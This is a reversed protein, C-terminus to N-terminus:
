EIGLRKEVCALGYSFFPWLLCNYIAQFVICYAIRGKFSAPHRLVGILFHILLGDFISICFLLGIQVVLSHTDFRQNSKGALFGWLSKAFAGSGLLGNSFFDQTLGGFFGFVTGTIDGERFSIVFLLLLVLDPKVGYISWFDFRTSQIILIILLLGIYYFLAKNKV